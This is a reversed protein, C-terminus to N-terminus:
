PATPAPKIWSVLPAIGPTVTLGFRAVGREEMMLEYGLRPFLGIVLKNRQSPIYTGVLREVGLDRALVVLDNHIFAEVGRAM